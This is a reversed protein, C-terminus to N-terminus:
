SKKKILNAEFLKDDPKEYKGEDQIKHTLLFPIISCDNTGKKM